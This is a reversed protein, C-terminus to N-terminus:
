GRGNRGSPEGARGAHPESIEDIVLAASPTLAVAVIEPGMPWVIGDHGQDRARACIARNVGLDSRKLRLPNDFRVAVSVTSGWGWLESAAETNTTYFGGQRCRELLVGVDRLSAAGAETTGHFQVATWAGEPAAAMWAEAERYTPM